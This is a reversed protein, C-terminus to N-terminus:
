IFDTRCGSFAIMSRIKESIARCFESAGRAAANRLRATCLVLVWKFLMVCSARASAVANMDYLLEARLKM